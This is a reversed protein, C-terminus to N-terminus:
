IKIWFHYILIDVSEKRHAISKLFAHNKKTKTIRLNEDKNWFTDIKALNDIWSNIQNKWFDFNEQEVFGIMGCQNLGKSHKGIKYREIGGNRKDGIVYEQERKKPPPAPLIKSEVVFLPPNTKGKEVEHFYFDPVGKTGFYLDSYQNQVAISVGKALLIATIQEVLIQTLKNENLPKIIGDTNIASIFDDPVEKITNVIFSIAKGKPISSKPKPQYHPQEAIM